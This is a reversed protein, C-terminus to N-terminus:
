NTKSQFTLVHLDFLCKFRNSIGLYSWQALCCPYCVNPIQTNNLNEGVNVSCNLSFIGLSKATNVREHESLSIFTQWNNDPLFFLMKTILAAATISKPKACSPLILIHLQIQHMLSPSYRHGKHIVRIENSCKGM